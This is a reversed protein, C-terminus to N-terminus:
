AEKKALFFVEVDSEPKEGARTTCTLSGYGIVKQGRNVVGGSEEITEQTSGSYTDEVFIASAMIFSSTITPAGAMPTVTVTQTYYDGPYNGAWSDVLFTAKYLYTSGNQLIDAFLQPYQEITTGSAVTAGNATLVSRLSEKASKIRNIQSQVSM